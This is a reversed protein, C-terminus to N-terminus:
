WYAADIRTQEDEAERAFRSLKARRRREGLGLYCLAGLVLAIVAYDVYFSPVASEWPSSASLYRFSICM